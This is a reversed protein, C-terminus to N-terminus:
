LNLLWGTWCTLTPRLLDPRAFNGTTTVLGRGFHNQWVRNVMVRSTLPHNPQTLWRALALRRGSTDTTWKPKSVNYPAIGDRLVSPVGPEVRPGSNLYEGRRLVHTPTPTGGMDFLARIRPQPKLNEELKRIARRTKESNLKFDPFHTELSKISANLPSAFKEM